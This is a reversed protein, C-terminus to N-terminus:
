NTPSLRQRCISKVAALAEAPTITDGASAAFARVLNVDHDAPDLCFRAIRAIEDCVSADDGFLRHQTVLTLCRTLTGIVGDGALLHGGPIV